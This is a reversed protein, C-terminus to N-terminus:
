NSSDQQKLEHYYFHCPSYGSTEATGSEFFSNVKIIIVPNEGKKEKASKLDVTINNGTNSIKDALIKYESDPESEFKYFVQHYQVYKAKISDTWTVEVKKDPLM